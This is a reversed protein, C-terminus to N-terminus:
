TSRTGMWKMLDSDEFYNVIGSTHNLLNSIHIRDAGYQSPFYKDLSDELHIVGKEVLQLVAIATFSKTISAIRFKSYKTNKVSLEVNAMGFGQAFIEEFGLSALVSGSFKNSKSLAQLYDNIRMNIENM